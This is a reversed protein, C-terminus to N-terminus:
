NAREGNDSFKGAPRSLLTPFPVSWSNCRFTACYNPLAHLLFQIQLTQRACIQSHCQLLQYRCTSCYIPFVFMLVGALPVITLSSASCFNYVYPTFYNPFFNHFHFYCNLSKLNSHIRKMTWILLGIGRWCTANGDAYEQLALSRPNGLNIYVNRLFITRGKSIRFSYIAFGRCACAVCLSFVKYVV